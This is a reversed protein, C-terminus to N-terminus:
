SSVANIVGSQGPRSTVKANLEKGDATKVTLIAGKTIINRRTFDKNSPNNVVSLIECKVPKKDVFVNAYNAVMLRLKTSGGMTRIKKLKKDGIVTNKTERGMAFKRKKHPKEPNGHYIAM